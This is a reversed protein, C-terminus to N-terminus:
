NLKSAGFFGAVAGLLATAAPIAEGGFTALLLSATVLLISAFVLKNNAGFGKTESKNMVSAAVFFAIVGFFAIIIQFITTPNM